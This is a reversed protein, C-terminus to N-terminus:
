VSVPRGRGGDSLPQDALALGHGTEPHPRCVGTIALGSTVLPVTGLAGDSGSFVHLGHNKVTERHFQTM